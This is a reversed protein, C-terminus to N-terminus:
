HLLNELGYEKRQEVLGIGKNTQDRQFHNPHTVPVVRRQELPRELEDLINRKMVDYNLLLIKVSSITKLIKLVFMGNIWPVGYAGVPLSNNRM